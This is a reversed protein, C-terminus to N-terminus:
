AAEKIFIHTANPHTSVPRFASGKLIWPVHSAHLTAVRPYCKCAQIKVQHNLIYVTQTHHSHRHKLPLKVDWIQVAKPPSSSTQPKSTQSIILINSSSPFCGPSLESQGQSEGPHGTTALGPCSRAQSLQPPTVQSCSLGTPCAPHGSTSNACPSKASERQPGPHSRPPLAPFPPPLLSMARHAPRPDPTTKSQHQKPFAWQLLHLLRHDLLVRTRQSGCLGSSGPGQGASPPGPSGRGGSSIAVM